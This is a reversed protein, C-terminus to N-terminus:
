KGFVAGKDVKFGRLFDAAGLRKKGPAQLEGIGIIGDGTEVEMLNGSLGVVRGPHGHGRFESRLTPSFLKIEKGNLVARAGPWPDLGRIFASIVVGPQSWKVQSMKREIKPAYTAMSHDQPVEQIRGDRLLNLLKVSFESSMFALRKHLSGATDDEAIEIREQFLIPGTDLGEDMKMATLGTKEERNLIAWNIPAAGRYRPLLSAHINIVGWSPIELLDKRLLQGFAVVFLIDPKRSIIENYFQTTSASEPQLVNLGHEIAVNKVPPPTVQQGRGKPRDPQTVVALVRHGKEVLANLSPVAFEPTGMFIIGPKDPFVSKKIEKVHM